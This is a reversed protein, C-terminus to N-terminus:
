CGFNNLVSWNFPPLKRWTSFRGSNSKCLLPPFLRGNFRVRGRGMPNYDDTMDNMYVYTSVHILPEPDPDPISYHVDAAKATDPVMKMFM